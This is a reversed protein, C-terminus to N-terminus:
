ASAPPSGNEASAADDGGTCWICSGCFCYGASFIGATEEYGIGKRRMAHGPSRSRLKQEAESSGQEAAEKKQKELQQRTEDIEFDDKVAQGRDKSIGKNLAATYELGNESGNTTYIGLSGCYITNGRYVADPVNGAHYVKALKGATLYTRELDTYNGSAAPKFAKEGNVVIWGDDVKVHDGSYKVM